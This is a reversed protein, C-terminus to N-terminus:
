AVKDLEHVQQLRKIKTLNGEIQLWIKQKEYSPLFPSDLYHSLRQNTEILARATTMQAKIIIEELHSM